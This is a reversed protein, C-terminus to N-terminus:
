PKRGGTGRMGPLDSGGGAGPLELVPAQSKPRAVEGKQGSAKPASPRVQLKDGQGAKLPVCKSPDKPDRETKGPCTLLYGGSVNCSVSPKSPTTSAAGPDGPQPEDDPKCVYVKEKTKKYKKEDLVLISGDPCCGNKNGSSGAPCCSGDNNATQDNSVCGNKEAHSGYSCCQSAGEDCVLGPTGPQEVTKWGASTDEQSVCIPAWPSPKTGPPCCLHGAAQSGNPCCVDGQAQYGNPCCHHGDAHSGAACKLKTCSLSGPQSHEDGACSPCTGISSGAATYTARTNAPCVQCGAGTQPEVSGFTCEPGCACTSTDLKQGGTCFNLPLGGQCNGKSDVGGLMGFHGDATVVCHQPCEQCKGGLFGQDGPCGCFPSGNADKRAVLPSKCGCAGDVFPLGGCDCVLQGSSDTRTSFPAPCDCRILHTCGWIPNPAIGDACVPQFAPGCSCTGDYLYPQTQNSLSSVPVQACYASSMGGPIASCSQCSNPSQFYHGNLETTQGCIYQNGMSTPCAQQGDYNTAVCSSAPAVSQNSCNAPPQDDGLGLCDIADDIMGELQKGGSDAAYCACALMQFVLTLDGSIDQLQAKWEDPLSNLIQQFEDSSIANLGQNSLNEIGQCYNHAAQSKSLSGGQQTSYADVLLYQATIAGTLAWMPPTAMLPVCSPHEIMLKAANYVQEPDLGDGIVKGCSLITSYIDAKAPASPPLSFVTALLTAALAQRARRVIKATANAIM